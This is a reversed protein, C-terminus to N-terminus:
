PTMRRTTFNPSVRQRMPIVPVHQSVLSGLLLNVQRVSEGVGGRFGTGLVEEGEEEKERYCWSWMVVEPVDLHLIIRLATLFISCM